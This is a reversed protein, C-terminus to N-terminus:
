VNQYLHNLPNDISTLFRDASEIRAKLEKRREYIELYELLDKNGDNTRTKIKNIKEDDPEMETQFNYLDLIRLTSKAVEYRNGLRIYPFPIDHTNSRAYTSYKSEVTPIM